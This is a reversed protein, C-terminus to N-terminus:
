RVIEILLVWAELMAEVVALLNAACVVYLGAPLGAVLLGGGAIVPLTALQALVVLKRFGSRYVATCM